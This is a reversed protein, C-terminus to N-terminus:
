HHVNRRIDDLLGSMSEMQYFVGNQSRIRDAVASIFNDNQGEADGVVILKKKKETAEYLWEGEFAVKGANSLANEPDGTLLVPKILNFSGNQYAFPANIRVGQPLEVPEPKKLFDVVGAKEFQKRLKTGVKQRHVAPRSSVLRNFLDEIDQQANKVLISRLPSLRIKGSRMGIFHEIRESHWDSGFESRIRDKLSECLLQFHRGVHVGFMKQIRHEAKGFKVHVRDNGSAFLVIGINVFEIREPHESYQILSYYGQGSM